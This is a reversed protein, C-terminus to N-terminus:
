SVLKQLRKRERASLRKNAARWRLTANFAAVFPAHEADQAVGQQSPALHATTTLWTAVDTWAWLPNRSRFHTAPPPFGGPGREGKILLRVSERTRDIREAIETMSVLEDPELHVVRAGPIASEIAETAEIVADALTEAERDFDLYQTTGVRGVLADDCGAEFLADLAAGDQLDVGEVILTFQHGTM